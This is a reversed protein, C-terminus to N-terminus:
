LGISPLEIGLRQSSPPKEIGLEHRTETISNRIM